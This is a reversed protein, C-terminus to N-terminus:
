VAVGKAFAELAELVKDFKLGGRAMNQLQVLRSSWRGTAQAGYYLFMGRVRGDRCVCRLMATYKKCSTAKSASLRIQLVRLAAESAIGGLKIARKITPAQMNPLPVGNVELWAKLAKTQTPRKVAGGTLQQIEAALKAEYEVVQALIKEILEVEVHVGRDNMRQDLRWVDMEDASLDPLTADLASEIEADTICYRANAQFEEATEHWLYFVRGGPAQWAKDPLAVCGLAELGGAEKKAATRPKCMRMMINYGVKDKGPLGMVECAKDLGRPINRTAAKAATCRWVDLPLAPFGHRKVMIERWICREFSANHAHIETAASMWEWLAGDSASVDPWLYRFPPAIWIFADVGEPFVSLCLADTHADEAYRYAGCTPLSVAGRTEFDITIKM